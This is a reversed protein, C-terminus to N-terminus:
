SLKQLFGESKEARSQGPCGGRGLMNVGLAPPLWVGPAGWNGRPQDETSRKSGRQARRESNQSVQQGWNRFMYKRSNYGMLCPNLCNGQCKPKGQAKTQPTHLLPLLSLFFSPSLSNFTLKRTETRMHIEEPNTKKLNQVKFSVKPWWNRLWKLRNMLPTKLTLQMM